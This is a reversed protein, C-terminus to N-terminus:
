KLKMPSDGLISEIIDVSRKSGDLASMKIELDTAKNRLTSNHLLNMLINEIKQNRVDSETFRVANGYKVCEEINFRQEAQMAIGAFPAGSACAAQVTGEGGHIFSASIYGKLLHVPVMDIHYINTGFVGSSIGPVPISGSVLVDVPASSLQHLISEIIKPSGSSGMGVYILPCDSNRDTIFSLNNPHHYFIPGVAIDGRAMYQSNLTPFISCILNVDASFADFTLQPLKVGYEKAVRVFSAPKWIVTRSLLKAGWLLFQEMYNSSRSNSGVSLHTKSFAYPRVYFLPTNMVRASIFATPNSGIVVADAHFNRITCIESSVRKRVLNTTFPHKLGRGQDFSMIQKIEADSMLPQALYLPMDFQEILHAYRESYIHFLIEHGNERAARAVEIARTTEGLNYSEPSFIIRIM